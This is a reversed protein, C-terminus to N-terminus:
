RLGAVVLVSRQRCAEIGNGAPDPIPTASPAFGPYVLRSGVMQCLLVPDASSTFSGDSQETFRVAAMLGDLTRLDSYRGRGPIGMASVFNGLSWFVPTGNVVEVPQITHPGHVLILDVDSGAIVAQVLALRRRFGIPKDGSRPEPLASGTRRARLM